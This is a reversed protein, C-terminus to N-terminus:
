RVQWESSGSRRNQASGPQTARHVDSAVELMREPRTGAFVAIEKWDEPRSMWASVCSTWGVPEMEEPQGTYCRLLDAFRMRVPVDAGFVFVWREDVHELICQWASLGCLPGDDEADGM